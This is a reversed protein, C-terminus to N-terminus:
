RGLEWRFAAELSPLAFRFDGLRTARVNQGALVLEIGFDGLFLRIAFAPVPLIAPRWLVRGLTRALDAQRAPEPSVANVVGEVDSRFLLHHILYILDDMAVWSQWQRGGGIPGLLGFGAVTALQQLAGGRASFCVGIRLRVVRCRSASGLPLVAAAEWARCLEGLYGGGLTSTEDVVEDGRDGYIGTAAANLWVRPPHPAAAIARSLTQATGVRSDHFARKNAPTWAKEGINEGALNVVADVGELVGPDLDTGPSWQVENPGPKRRVLRTVRHGGTTLFHTLATGVLGSAGALLVHQPRVGAHRSLDEMLRPRRFAFMKAMTGNVLPAALGPGYEIEDHIVTGAQSAVFRHTHRWRSFPGEAQEDVFGDPHDHHEAVWRLGPPIRMVARDGEGVTGTGTREVVEVREWPPTLRELAGPRRHWALVEAPPFPLPTEFRLTPM